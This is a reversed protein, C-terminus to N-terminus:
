NKRDNMNKNKHASTNIHLEIILVIIVIIKIIRLFNHIYTINIIQLNGIFLNTQSIGLTTPACQENSPAAATAM